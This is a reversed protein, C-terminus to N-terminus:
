VKLKDAFEKDVRLYEIFDDSDFEGEKKEKEEKNSLSIFYEQGEECCYLEITAHNTAVKEEDFPQISSFDGAIMEAVAQEKNDFYKLKLNPEHKIAWKDGVECFPQKSKMSAILLPLILIILAEIIWIVTLFTGSVAEGGRLSWTGYENIYKMSAWLDAPSTLLAMINEVFSMDPSGLISATWVVWSLYLGLLAAVFGMLTAFKPSRVKGIGSAFSIIWGLAFGFGATILFNIYIFPCYKNAYAYVFSLIPVGILIVLLTVFIGASPVKGSPQYFTTKGM